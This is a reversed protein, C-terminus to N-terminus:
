ELSDGLRRLADTTAASSAKAYIEMTVAQDAHRLIRMIVRPHVDLDVLLTACTRRADHVTLHRVGAAVCRDTFKVNFTRPDVPTGYRGTFVFHPGEDLGRWAEAVEARDAEQHKRWLTLATAVIGPIPLSADSAETKTERHLLARGVRQLQHDIVLEGADLDVADWTLGLVEGKRMGLVLVLVYAAYLADQDHRASELFRRAEESTWPVVKRKRQRPSKVLAAVNREILEEAMASSLASRLVTRLDKITRPSPCSQCCRAIACCRARDPDRAARRADKGQACCQCQEPLVNLWRQLDSVRLRDIRHRGIGPVIYNRVHSEYTAYTLPALNPRVTDELWRSLFQEVTPVATVVPGRAAKQSLILWKAHVAPRTKGYVYKRQRRGSPTTVWVYAAFGNRNPYISGEGNARTRGRTM